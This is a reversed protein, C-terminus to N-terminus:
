MTSFNTYVSPSFLLLASRYFLYVLSCNSDLLKKKLARKFAYLTLSKISKPLNNYIKTIQYTFSCKFLETRRAPPSLRGRFRVNINHVDSRFSIKLYLYTPAKSTIIKHFLCAAHLLRRDAMNLWGLEKLKHSISQRKRIGFILRLCANQVVQIRRADEFDICPGYITDSFNFKSLVLSECLLTKVKKSIYHRNNYLMKLNGYANRICNNIHLKFKLTPDIVLGLNRTSSVPVIEEDGFKIKIRQTFDLRAKRPGFILVSTKKPNISLSHENSWKVISSIDENIDLLALDCDKPSFSHYIQTDNAYLHLKCKHIAKQITSTYLMFILPGVISGQAVGSCIELPTSVEEGIKVSQYRNHFYSRFFQISEKSFGLYNLVAFLTEYNLTDFAKSFDILALVTLKREDISRLIDTM